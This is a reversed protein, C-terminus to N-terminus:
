TQSFGQLQRSKPQTANQLEVEGANSYQNKGRENTTIKKQARYHLGRFYSLQIPTLNRRSVQDSLYFGRGFDTRLRSKTLDITDIVPKGLDEATHQVVYLIWVARDAETHLTRSM